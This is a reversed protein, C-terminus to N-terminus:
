KIDRLKGSAIGILIFIPAAVTLLLLQLIVRLELLMKSIGRAVRMNDFFLYYVLAM